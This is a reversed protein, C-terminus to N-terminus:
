SEVPTLAKEVRTKLMEYRYRTEDDALCKARVTKHVAANIPKLTMTVPVTYQDGTTDVVTGDDLVNFYHTEDIGDGLVAYRVIDGGLYDQVVLSSTVCQGRAPNDETWVGAGAYGTEANWSARLAQKIQELSPTQM